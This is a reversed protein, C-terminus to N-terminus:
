PRHQTAIAEAVAQIAKGQAAVETAIREMTGALTSLAAILEPPVAIVLTLPIATDAKPKPDARPKPAPQAAPEEADEHHVPTWPDAGSM